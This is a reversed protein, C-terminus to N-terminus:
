VPRRPFYLHVGPFPQCYEELVPVLEGAEIHERVYREFAIILGVGAVALQIYLEADTTTVRADGSVSFDRGDETFEWCAESGAFGNRYYSSPPDVRFTSTTPSESILRTSQGLSCPRSASSSCSADHLASSVAHHRSSTRWPRSVRGRSSM